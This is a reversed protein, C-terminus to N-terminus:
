EVEILDEAKETLLEGVTMGAEKRDHWPKPPKERGPILQPSKLEEPNM